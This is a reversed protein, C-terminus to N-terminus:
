APYGPLAPADKLLPAARDKASLIPERVPWDIGIAPDDWRIARDCDPAYVSGTVAYIIETEDSLTAFGHAFGPPIWLQNREAADLEVAVHRGFTPSGRRVDVAIDLLTGKLAFVLKGQARPEQFHLGRVTGRVSSSHNLQVFDLELGAERWAERNWRELFFGRDDGFVKPRIMLVEPLATKELQM